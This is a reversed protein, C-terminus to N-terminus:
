SWNQNGKQNTCCLIKEHHFLLPKRRRCEGTNLLVTRYGPESTETFQHLQVIVPDFSFPKCNINESLGSVTTVIIESLNDPVKDDWELQM